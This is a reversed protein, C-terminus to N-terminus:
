SEELAAPVAFQISLRVGVGILAFFTHSVSETADDPVASSSFDAVKHPKGLGCILHTAVKLNAPRTIHFFRSITVRGAIKLHRCVSGPIM